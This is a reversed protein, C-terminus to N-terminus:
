HYVWYFGKHTGGKKDEDLVKIPTEDAEFLGSQLVEIKLVDYLPAILDSAAGVWDSMTSAPVDVGLRKFQGIQRYLPLHDVYKSILIHAFLAPSPIGKEIPRSPLRGILVGEADQKAYKPRIYKNVKLVPPFYEM